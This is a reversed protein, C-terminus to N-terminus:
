RRGSGTIECLRANVRLWKADRTFQVVGINTNEFMARLLTESRAAQAEIRKRSSIDESFIIVGGIKRDM